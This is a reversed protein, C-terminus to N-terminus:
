ISGYASIDSVRCVELFFTTGNHMVYEIDWPNDRGVIYFQPQEPHEDYHIKAYQQAFHFGVIDERHRDDLVNLRVVESVGGNREIFVHRSYNQKDVLDARPAFTGEAGRLFINKFM